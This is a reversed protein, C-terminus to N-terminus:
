KAGGAAYTKNVYDRLSPPNIDKARRQWGLIAATRNFANALTAVAAPDVDDGKLWRVGVDRIMGATLAVHDVASRELTSLNTEGGLDAIIEGRMERVVQAARTRDDLDDLTLLRVKKARSRRKAPPSGAEMEDSDESLEGM